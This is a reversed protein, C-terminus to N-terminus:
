MLLAWFSYVSILPALVALLPVHEKKYFLIFLVGPILPILLYYFPVHVYETRLLFSSSFALTAYIMDVIHFQQIVAKEEESKSLTSITYVILLVVMILATIIGTSRMTGFFGALFLIHLLLVWFKVYQYKLDQIVILVMFITTLVFLIYKM